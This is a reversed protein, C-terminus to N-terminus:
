AKSQKAKPRTKSQPADSIEPRILREPRVSHSRQAVPRTLTTGGIHPLKVVSYLCRRGGFPPPPGVSGESEAGWGETACINTCVFLFCKDRSQPPPILVHVGVNTANTRGTHALEM